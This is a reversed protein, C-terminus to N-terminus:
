ISATYYIYTIVHKDDYGVHIPDDSAGLYLWYEKEKERVFLKSNEVTSVISADDGVRLTVNDAKVEYQKTSISFGAFGFLQTHQFHDEGYELRHELGCCDGETTEEDTPNAGLAAKLETLTYYSGIELGNISQARVFATTLLMGTILTIKITKM